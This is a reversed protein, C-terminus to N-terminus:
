NFIYCTSTTENDFAIECEKKGHFLNQIVEKISEILLGSKTELRFEESVQLM